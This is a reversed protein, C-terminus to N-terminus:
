GHVTTGADLSCLEEIPADRRDVVHLQAWLGPNLQVWRRYLTFLTREDDWSLNNAIVRVDLGDHDRDVWLAEVGPVNRVLSWLGEGPAETARMESRLTSLSSINSVAAYPFWEYRDVKAVVLPIWGAFGSTHAQQAAVYLPKPTSDAHDYAVSVRTM